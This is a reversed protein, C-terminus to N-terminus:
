SRIIFVSSMPTEAGISRKMKVALKKCRKYVKYILRLFDSATGQILCYKDLSSGKDADDFHNCVCKKDETRTETVECIGLKPILKSDEDCVTSNRKRYSKENKHCNSCSNTDKTWGTWLGNQVDSCAIVVM